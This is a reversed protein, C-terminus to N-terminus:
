RTPNPPQMPRQVSDLNFRADKRLKGNASEWVGLLLFPIV